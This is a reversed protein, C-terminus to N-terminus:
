KLLQMKNIQTYLGTTLRYFYIGSSLNNGNFNVEYEGPQKEENVITEVKRGLIDFIELKVLGEAKNTIM